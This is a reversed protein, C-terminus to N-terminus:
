RLLNRTLGSWFGEKYEKVHTTNHHSWFGLLRFNDYDPHDVDGYVSELEGIQWKMMLAANPILRDNFTTSKSLDM